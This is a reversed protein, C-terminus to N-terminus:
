GGDSTGNIKVTWTPASGDTVANIFVQKDASVGTGNIKMAASLGSSVVAWTGDAKLFKNAAADGSGPAPVLGKVGGSGSDGVMVPVAIDTSNNGANDTATIPALFNLVGRQTKPTGAQQITQYQLAQFSPDASPGNSMLVWGSTGPAAFAVPSTAQGLLVAHNTLTIDGTGGNAVPLTGYVGGYSGASGSHGLNISPIFGETLKAFIPVNSLPVIGSIEVAVVVVQGTGGVASGVTITNSGANINVGLFMTLQSGGILTDNVDVIKYYLNGRTDSVVPVTYFPNMNKATVTVLVCNGQTNTMAPLTTTGLTTLGNGATVNQVIAAPTGNTPFCVVASCFDTGLSARSATVLTGGLPVNQTLFTGLGYYPPNLANSYVTTWGGNVGPTQSNILFVAFDNANATTASTYVPDSSIGEQRGLVDVYGGFLGSPLSLFVTYAPEPALAFALPGPLTVTQNVPTFINPINLGISQAPAASSAIVSRAAANIQPNAKTPLPPFRNQSTGPRAWQRVRDYDTTWISPAPGLTTTSLGPQERPISSPVQSAATAPQILEGINEPKVLADKLSPM